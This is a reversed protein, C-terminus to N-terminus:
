GCVPAARDKQGELDWEPAAFGQSTAPCTLGIEVARGAPLATACGGKRMRKKGGTNAILQGM